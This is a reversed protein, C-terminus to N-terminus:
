AAGAYRLRAAELVRTAQAPHKRSVWMLLLQALPVDHGAREEADRTALVYAASAETRGLVERLAEDVASAFRPYNRAPLLHSHSSCVRPLTEAQTAADFVDVRYGCLLSFSRRLALRNWLRELEDAAAAEGRRVLLDVMEGFVRTRGRRSAVADLLGGVAREFREASPHPGDMISALTTEADAVVLLGAEQAASFGWGGAAFAESVPPMHEPAIVLVAPEGREFGALAYAAVSEVLEHPEAYLQAGHSSPKATALFEGWAQRM